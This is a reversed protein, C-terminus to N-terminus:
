HAEPCAPSFSPPEAQLRGVAAVFIYCLCKSTYARDIEVSGLSARRLPLVVAIASYDLGGQLSLNINTHAVSWLELLQTLMM